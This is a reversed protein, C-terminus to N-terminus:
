GIGLNGWEKQFFGEQIKEIIKKLIAKHFFNM